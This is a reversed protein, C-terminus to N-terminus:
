HLSCNTSHIWNRKTISQSRNVAGTSCSTYLQDLSSMFCYYFRMPHFGQTLEIDALRFAVKSTTLQQTLSRNQAELFEICATLAAHVLGQTEEAPASVSTSNWPGDVVSNHDQHECSSIIETPLAHVSYDTLLAEGVPTSCVESTTTDSAAPEHTVESSTNPQKMVPEYQLSLNKRKRSSEHRQSSLKKPSIFREGLNLCPIQTTDGNRFHRSCIRHHELVDDETLNLAVLWKQRNVTESKPPIRHM